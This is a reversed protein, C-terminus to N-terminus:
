KFLLGAKGQQCRNLLYSPMYLRSDIIGLRVKLAIRSQFQVLIVTFPIGLRYNSALSVFSSYKIIYPEALSTLEAHCIYVISTDM